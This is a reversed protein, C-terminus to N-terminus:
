REWTQIPEYTAIWKITTEGDKWSGQMEEIAAAFEPSKPFADLAEKSEFGYIALYKAQDKSEGTLQYRGVKKLDKFKLLMPVHVENYWKNFRAENEASCETAVINLIMGKAM